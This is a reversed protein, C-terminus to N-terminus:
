TVPTAAAEPTAPSAEPSASGPAPEAFAQIVGFSTAVYIVGDVVAAQVSPEGDLTVHWLEAGTAADLAYVAGDGESPVYIIDGAIAVPTAPGGVQAQWLEAGSAADFAYVTGDPSSSYGVGNAVSPTFMPEDRQWRLAGTEADYASLSGTLSGAGVYVIGEAVVASGNREDGTDVQWVIEGTAADVAALNGSESGVYAMGDLVAADGARGGTPITTRWREEGTVADLGILFGEGTNVLAIGGAVAPAAAVSAAAYRWREEGTAIDVAYLSMSDGGIVYALGGAITPGNVFPEFPDATFTWRLEGTARAVAYLNGDECAVYVTDGAVAPVPGCYSFSSTDYRWLEVPQTIPGVNTAGSRTADGRWHTWGPAAEPTPTAVPTAPAALRIRDDDHSGALWIGAASAILLLIILAIEFAPIAYTRIAAPMRISPRWLRRRPPAHRPDPLSLPTASTTTVNMATIEKQRALLVQLLREEYAPQDPNTAEANDLTRVLAGLDAPVAAPPVPTAPRREIIADWYDLMADRENRAPTRTFWTM